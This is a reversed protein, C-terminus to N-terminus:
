AVTRITQLQDAGSCRQSAVVCVCAVAMPPPGTPTEVPSPASTQLTTPRTEVLTGIAPAPPTTHM